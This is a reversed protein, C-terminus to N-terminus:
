LPIIYRWIVNFCNCCRQQSMAQNKAWFRLQIAKLDFGDHSAQEVVNCNGPLTDRYLSEIGYRSLTGRYLIEIFYGPLTM